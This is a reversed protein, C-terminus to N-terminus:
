PLADPQHPPRPCPPPPPPPVEATWTWSSTLLHHQVNNQFIPRPMWCHDDSLSPRTRSPPLSQSVKAIPHSRRRNLPRISSASLSTDEALIRPCRHQLATVTNHMTAKVGSGGDGGRVCLALRLGDRPGVGGRQATCPVAPGQLVDLGGRGLIHMSNLVAMALGAGRRGRRRCRPSMTYVMNELIKTQGSEHAGSSKVPHAWPWGM